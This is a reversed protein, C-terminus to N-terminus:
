LRAFHKVVARYIERNLFLGKFRFAKMPLVQVIAIRSVRTDQPRAVGVGEAVGSAGGAEGVIVGEGAVAAPYDGLDYLQYGDVVVEGLFEAGHLLNNMRAGRRLLGYVVIRVTM